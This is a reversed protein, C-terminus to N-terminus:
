IQSGSQGTDLHSLKRGAYGSTIAQPGNGVRITAVVTGTAPSVESVTGDFENAVWVEGGAVTVGSPGRGVPIRDVVRHASNVRLLFGDSSDTIWAAGAGYALGAPRGAGSVVGTVVGQTADIV